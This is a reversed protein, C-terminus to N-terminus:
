LLAEEVQNTMKSVTSAMSDTIGEEVLKQKLLSQPMSALYFASMPFSNNSSPM